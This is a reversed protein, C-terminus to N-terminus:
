LRLRWCVGDDDDAAAFEDDAFEDDDNARRWLARLPFTAIGADGADITPGAPTMRPTTARRRRHIAEM